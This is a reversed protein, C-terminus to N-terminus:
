KKVTLQHLGEHMKHKWDFPVFYTTTFSAYVMWKNVAIKLQRFPKKRCRFFAPRWYSVKCGEIRSTCVNVVLSQLPGCVFIGFFTPDTFEQTTKKERTNNTEFRSFPRFFTARLFTFFPSFPDERREKSKKTGYLRFNM